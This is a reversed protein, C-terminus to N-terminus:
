NTQIMQAAYGVGLGGVGALVVYAALELKFKGIFGDFPEWLGDVFPQLIPNVVLRTLEPAVGVYGLKDKWKQEVPDNLPIM